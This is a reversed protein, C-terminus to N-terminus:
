GELRYAEVRWDITLGSVGVIQVVPLGTAGDLATRIETSTTGAPARGITSYRSLLGSAASDYVHCLGVLSYVEGVVPPDPVGLAVVLLAAGGAGAPLLARGFAVGAPVLGVTRATGSLDVGGYHSELPEASDGRALRHRWWAAVERLAGLEDASLRGGEGGSPEAVEGDSGPLQIRKIMFCRFYSIRFVLYSIRSVFESAREESAVRLEYSTVIGM